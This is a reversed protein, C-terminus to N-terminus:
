PKCSWLKKEFRVADIVGRYYGAVRGVDDYGQRRYFAIAKPNDARAEVRITGIGANRAPKELWSTLMAGLGRSRQTPQVCLLALHATEEGYHMIGFGYLCGRQHIVAVNTAKDQISYVVRCQSWSWGLGQEIFDRSMEAISRADAPLALRVTPIVIM